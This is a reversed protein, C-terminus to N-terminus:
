EGSINPNCCITAPFNVCFNDVGAAAVGWSEAIHLTLEQKRHWHLFMDSAHFRKRRERFESGAAAEKLNAYIYMTKAAGTMGDRGVADSVGHEEVHAMCTAAM